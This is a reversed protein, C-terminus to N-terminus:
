EGNEAEAAPKKKPQFIIKVREPTTESSKAIVKRKALDYHISEGQFRDSGQTVWAEGTLIVIENVADYEIRRAEGRVPPGDPPDQAFTVPEGILTGERVAGEIARIRVEDARVDLSGKRVTVNGRFVSIETARDAEFHDANVELAAEADSAPEGAFVPVAFLGNTQLVFLLVFLLAKMAASTQLLSMENRM